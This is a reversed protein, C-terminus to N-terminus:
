DEKEIWTRALEYIQDAVEEITMDSSDILIADEAQRLPSNARHSDNYDREEIEKKLAMLDKDDIGTEANQKLRRVARAHASATLFIKVQADKLVVTGIDRGDMIIGGELAMKKQRAVLDERVGKFKSVKSAGMSIENERIQHTVDQGDLFVKKDPTLRIDTNSLISTVADEDELDLGNQIAKLAVCRYMAGTDLHVYGIREAVIDAITSKGAASPGDIAINIRM